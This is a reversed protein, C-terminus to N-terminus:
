PLEVHEEHALRALEDMTRAELQRVREKTISLKQGVQELTHRNEGNLGFRLEVIKRKREDLRELLRNVQRHKREAEAEIEQENSRIDPAIEFMEEHGTIFRDRHHKEDPISRAFNKMIAWSAYTSFKNGRSFDFKEVARLLSLNGDSMLEFFNDNPGAHRKVISAVLRMNASVLQDKLDHIRGQLEELRDLDSSRARAPDIRKQLKEAKHKLFNMKRFLHAEQERNLLPVEYLAALEPPLGKPASARAKARSAEYAEQDPMPDMIADERSADDFSEHPIYTIPQSLLRQARMENVIRYMSTRTRNFREALANVSIGRRYSSYIAQKAQEDLPGGLEPFIALEPHMEDHKKLTYRITEVSRLMKRAIRRCIETFRDPAKQAM